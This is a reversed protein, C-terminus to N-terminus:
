DLNFSKSDVYDFSTFFDFYEESYPVDFYESCSPNFSVHDSIPYKFFEIIDGVKIVTSGTSNIEYSQHDISLEKKCRGYITPLKQVETYIEQMLTNQVSQLRGIAEHISSHMALKTKILANENLM